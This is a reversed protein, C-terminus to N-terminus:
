PLDVPFIKSWIIDYSLSVSILKRRIENGDCMGNVGMM